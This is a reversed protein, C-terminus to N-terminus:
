DIDPHLHKEIYQLDYAQRIDAIDKAGCRYCIWTPEGKIMILDRESRCIPCTILKKYEKILEKPEPPPNDQEYEKEAEEDIDPDPIIPMQLHGIFGTSPSEMTRQIELLKIAVKQGKETLGIYKALPKVKMEREFVLNASKLFDIRKIVVNITENLERYLQNRNMMGNRNLALIIPVDHSKELFSLPESENPM